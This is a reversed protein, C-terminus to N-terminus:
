RGKAASKKINKLGKGSKSKRRKKPKESSIIDPKKSPRGPSRREPPPADVPILWVGAFRIAGEVRGGALLTSVRQPTIRWKAAAQERTIYAM